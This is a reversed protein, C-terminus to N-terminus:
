STPTTRGVGHAHNAGTAMFGGHFQEHRVQHGPQLDRRREFTGRSRQRDSLQDGPIRVSRSLADRGHRKGYQQLHGHRRDHLRKRQLSGHVTTSPSCSRKRAASTSRASSSARSSARSPGCTAAIRCRTSCKRALDRDTVVREDHGSRRVRGQRTGTRQSSGVDLKLDVRATVDANVVIDAQTPSPLGTVRGSRQLTGARAQHVSVRGPEDTVTSQNGGITGPNILTVDRGAACGSSADAITGGIAGVGQAAAFRSACTVFLVVVIAKWAFSRASM